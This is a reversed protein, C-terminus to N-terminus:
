RLLELCARVEDGVSDMESRGLAKSYALGSTVTVVSDRNLVKNTCGKLVGVVAFEKGSRRATRPIEKCVSLM